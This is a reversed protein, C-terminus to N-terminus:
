NKGGKEIKSATDFLGKGSDVVTDMLAPAKGTETAGQQAPELEVSKFAANYVSILQFANGSDVLTDMLAPSKGIGSAGKQAEELELIEMISKYAELSKDHSNWGDTSINSKKASEFLGKGSDILTNMATPSKGVAQSAASSYVDYLEFIKKVDTLEPNNERQAKLGLEAFKSGISVVEDKNEVIDQIDKNVVKNFSSLLLLDEGKKMENMGYAEQITPIRSDSDKFSISYKGDNLGLKDFTFPNLANVIYELKTKKVGIATLRGSAKNELTDIGYEDTILKLLKKNYENAFHISISEMRTLCLDKSHSKICNSYGTVNSAEYQNYVKNITTVKSAFIENDFKTKESATIIAIAPVSLTVLLAALLVTPNKTSKM